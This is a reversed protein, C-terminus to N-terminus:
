SRTQSTGSTQMPTLPTAPGISPDKSIDEAEEVELDELNVDPSALSGETWAGSKAIFM